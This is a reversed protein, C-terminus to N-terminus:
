PPKIMPIRVERAKRAITTTTEITSAVPQRFRERDPRTPPSVSLPIIMTSLPGGSPVSPPGITSISLPMGGRSEPPGGASHTVSESHRELSCHLEPMHTGRIVMVHVSSVIAGYGPAAHLADVRDQMDSQAPSPAHMSPHMAASEFGSHPSQRFWFVMEQMLLM